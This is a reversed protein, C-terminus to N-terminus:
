ARWARLEVLSSPTARDEGDLLSGDITSDIASKYITLIPANGKRKAHFCGSSWSDNKELTPTEVHHGEM